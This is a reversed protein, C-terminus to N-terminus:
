RSVAQGLFPPLALAATCLLWVGLSAADSEKRGSIREFLAAPIGAILLTSLSLLLSTAYFMLLPSSVFFGPAFARLVLFAPDFLPSFHMGNLLSLAAIGILMGDRRLIDSRETDDHSTM